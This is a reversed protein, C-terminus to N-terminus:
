GNPREQRKEADLAAYTEAVQEPTMPLAALEPSARADVADQDALGFGDSRFPEASHWPLGSAAGGPRLLLFEVRDKFIGLEVELPDSVLTGEPAADLIVQAALRLKELYTQEFEPIEPGRTADKGM